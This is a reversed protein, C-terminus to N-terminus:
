NSIAGRPAGLQLRVFPPQIDAVRDSHRDSLLNGTNGTSTRTSEIQVGAQSWAAPASSGGDSPSCPFHPAIPVTSNLGSSQVPCWSGGGPGTVHHTSLSPTSGPVAPHWRPSLASPPSGLPRINPSAQRSFPSSTSDSGAAPTCWEWLLSM